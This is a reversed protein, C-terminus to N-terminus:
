FAENGRNIGVTWRPDVIDKLFIGVQVTFDVVLGSVKNGMPLELFSPGRVFYRVWDPDLLFDSTYSLHTRPSERPILEVPVVQGGRGGAPAEMDAYKAVTNRSVHLVRAIESRSRGPADMSRMDNVKDLPVTM